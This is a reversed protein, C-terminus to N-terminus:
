PRKGLRDLAVIAELVEVRVKDALTRDKPEAWTLGNVGPANLVRDPGTALLEKARELAAGKQGSREAKLTRDRLMVFYEYDEVSERIAEGHKGPTVSASDLFFPVYCAAHPMAYENWSSGGGSDSFAWFHSATAGYRWATWAQLRFYSYPDALRAALNCSYFALETGESRRQVFYDRYSQPSSLFRPRNPCLVHCLKIMEQNAALPDTHCVDEWIKVGTNAARIAKAWPVIVDDRKAEAPEDVLLIVLQEPKLGRKAAHQSFFTIWARVQQEFEPTGMAANNLTDGVSAFVCYQRAQPWM